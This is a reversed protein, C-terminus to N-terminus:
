TAVFKTMVEILAHRKEILSRRRSLRAVGVRFVWGHNAYTFDCRYRELDARRPDIFVPVNRRVNVSKPYSQKRYVWLAGKAYDSLIVSRVNPLVQECASYSCLEPDYKRLNTKLDLRSRLQQWPECGRAIQHHNLSIGARCTVKVNLAGVPTNKGVAYRNM